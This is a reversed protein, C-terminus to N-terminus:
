LVQTADLLSPNSVGHSRILFTQFFLFFLNPNGRSVETLFSYLGKYGGGSCSTGAFCDMEKKQFRLDNRAKWLYWLTTMIRQFQVDSTNPTVISALIEQIGDQEFPLLSTRLPTKSSFWVARTFQCHFFLHADNELM